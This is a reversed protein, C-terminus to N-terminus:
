IHQKWLGLNEKWFQSEWCENFDLPKQKQKKLKIRGVMKSKLSIRTTAMEYYIHYLRLSYCLSPFPKIKFDM